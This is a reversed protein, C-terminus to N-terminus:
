IGNNELSLSTINSMNETGELTTLGVNSLKIAKITKNNGIIKFINVASLDM